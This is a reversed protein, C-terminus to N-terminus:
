AAKQKLQPLIKIGQKFICLVSARWLREDGSGGSIKVVPSYDPKGHLKALNQHLTDFSYTKLFKITHAILFVINGNVRVCKPGSDKVQCFAM